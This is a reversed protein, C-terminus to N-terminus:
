LNPHSFAGMAAGEITSARLLLDAILQLGQPRRTTSATPSPPANAADSVDPAHASLSAPAQVDTASTGAGVSPIDVAFTPSRMTAAYPKLGNPPSVFRVRM